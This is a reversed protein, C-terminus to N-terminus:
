QEVKVKKNWTQTKKYNSILEFSDPITDLATTAYNDFRILLIIVLFGGEMLIYYSDLDSDLGIHFNHETGENEVM